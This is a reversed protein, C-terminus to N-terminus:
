ICVLKIHQILYHLYNSESKIKIIYSLWLIDSTVMATLGILVCTGKSIRVNKLKRANRFMFHIRWVEKKNVEHCRSSNSSSPYSEQSVSVLSPAGEVVPRSIPSLEIARYRSPLSLDRQAVQTWCLLTMNVCLLRRCTGFEKRGFDEIGASLVVVHLVRWSFFEKALAIVAGLNTKPFRSWNSHVEM